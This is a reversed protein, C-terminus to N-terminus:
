LHQIYYLIYFWISSVAHLFAFFSFTLIPVPNPIVGLDGLHLLLNKLPVLLGNHLDLATAWMAQAMHKSNGTIFSSRHSFFQLASRDVGTAAKCAEKALKYVPGDLVNVSSEFMNEAIDQSHESSADRLREYVFRSLIRGQRRRRVWLPPTSPSARANERDVPAIMDYDYSSARLRCLANFRDIPFNKNLTDRIFALSSIFAENSSTRNAISNAEASIVRRELQWSYKKPSISISTAHRHRNNAHVTAQPLFIIALLFFRAFAMEQRGLVRLGSHQGLMGDTDATLREEQNLLMRRRIEENLQVPPRM